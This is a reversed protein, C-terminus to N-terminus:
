KSEQSIIDMRMHTVYGHIIVDAGIPISNNISEVTFIYNYLEQLSHINPQRSLAVLSRKNLQKM